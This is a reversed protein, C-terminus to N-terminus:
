RCSGENSGACSSMVSFNARADISSENIGDGPNWPAWLNNSNQLFRTAKQYFAEARYGYKERDLRESRSGPFGQKMQRVGHDGEHLSRMALGNVTGSVSTSKEAIAKLDFTVTGKGERNTNVQAADGKLDGFSVKIDANGKEGFFGVAANLTGRQDATLKTSTSAEKAMSIADDFNGCDTKSGSCVYRGDPDFFKYPNNNAYIYRNFNQSPFSLATVPDTSLFRGIKADFYRQQMYSLGTAADSVHGSYGPGDEVLRNVQLGYPEYETREVVNQNADTVVIPSGLADTHVYEVVTQASAVFTVACLTATAVLTSIWKM